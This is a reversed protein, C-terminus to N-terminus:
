LEPLLIALACSDQHKTEGPRERATTAALRVIGFFRLYGGEGRSQADLILM